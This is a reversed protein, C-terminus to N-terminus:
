HKIDQGYVLMEKVNVENYYVVNLYIFFFPTLAELDSCSKPDSSPLEFSDLKLDM